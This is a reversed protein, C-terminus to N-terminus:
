RTLLSGIWCCRFCVLVDGAAGVDGDAACGLLADIRVLLPELVEYGVVQVDGLGEVRVGFDEHGSEVTGGDAEGRSQDTEGIEDVGSRM